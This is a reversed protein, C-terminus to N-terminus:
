GCGGMSGRWAGIYSGLGRAQTNVDLDKLEAVKRLATGVATYVEQKSAGSEAVVLAGEQAAIILQRLRM